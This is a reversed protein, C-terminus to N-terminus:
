MLIEIFFEGSIWGLSPDELSDESFTEYSQEFSIKVSVTRFHGELIGGLIHASMKGIVGRSM